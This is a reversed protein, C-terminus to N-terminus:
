HMIINAHIFRQAMDPTEKIVIKIQDEIDKNQDQIKDM